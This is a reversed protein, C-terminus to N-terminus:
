SWATLPPLNVTMNAVPNGKKDVVLAQVQNTGSGAVQGDVEVTFNNATIEATATDAIFNVEVTQEKRNLTAKM